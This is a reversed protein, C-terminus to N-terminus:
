ETKLLPAVIKLLPQIQKDWYNWSHDGPVAHFEHAIKHSELLAAFARNSELFPDSNGCDMYFYPLPAGAKDLLTQLDNDTHAPNDPPGFALHISNLAEPWNKLGEEKWKPARLAGSFSGVFRFLAPYKLGLKIAGYGGMSLGVIARADREAITRYRSDITPILEKIIYDEYRQKPDIASNTYWSDNGEPTVIILSYQEAYQSLKSNSLWDSYHGTLGHLLYIVPYHKKTQDYDPPLLVQYPLAGAVANGKIEGKEVRLHATQGNAFIAM